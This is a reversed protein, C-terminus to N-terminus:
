QLDEQRVTLFKKVTGVAELEGSEDINKVQRSTGSEKPALENM